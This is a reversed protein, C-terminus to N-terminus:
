DLQDEFVVRGVGARRHGLRGLQDVLVLGLDHHAARVARGSEGDPRDQGLAFDWLETRYGVGGAQLLVRGGRDRSRGRTVVRGHEALVRRALEAVAVGG